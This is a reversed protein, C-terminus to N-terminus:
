RGLQELMARAEQNDPDLRLAKKLVGAADSIKGQDAYAVALNIYGKMFNPQAEVSKRFMRVADELRGQNIYAVGLNNYGDPFKPNARIAKQFMQIAEDVKGQSAYEVGLNSYSPAFYFCTEIAKQFAKISEEGRGMLSYAKGLNNYAEVFNPNLQVAKQFMEVAEAMKGQKAYEIGLNNHPPPYGPDIQIAKQFLAIAEEPQGANSYAIGLDNYANKNNPQLKVAKEMMRKAEEVKGQEGYAFILHSYAVHNNETVRSAHEFLTQNDRWFGVQRWTLVTCALLVVGAAAALAPRQWRWGAALDRAGWAALIFIGILPVYTFRDAMGQEGSQLLGIVPLLTLLYWFWGVALYPRRGLERWALCTFGLLALASAVALGWSVKNGPHPYFVALNLPWVTKGLYALYSILANAVRLDPPIATISAMATKQTIVTLTGFLAALALLPVKEWLLRRWARRTEPSSFPLRRGEAGAPPLPLRGLPWFDLLLLVAPLTVLMPKAMLGLAFALMVLAYRKLSPRDVYWVYAWMTLLWFFTSLVDKREAAWAVSEVHLPHLAFLAAVMASPWLARTVRELFLFLLLTNLLHFWLNTLHHWRPDLGFLQYDLLHSLWTVPHWYGAFSVNTFAWVVTKANLGSQVFVNETIYPPDDYHVFDNDKVQWFAAVTVLVLLAGIIL